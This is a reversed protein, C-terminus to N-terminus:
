IKWFLWRSTLLINWCSRWRRRPSDIRKSSYNGSPRRPSVVSIKRPSRLSHAREISTSDVPSVMLDAVVKPDMDVSNRLMERLITAQTKSDLNKLNKMMEQMVRQKMAPPLDDLNKALENLEKASMKEVSKLVKELMEPTMDASQKLVDLLTSPNIPKKTMEELLKTKMEGSLQGSSMLEKLLDKKDPDNVLGSSVSSQWRHDSFPSANGALFKEREAAPMQNLNKIMEDMLKTRMAPNLDDSNELMKALLKQREDDPLDNMTSLVKEMLKAKTKADLPSTEAPEDGCRRLDKGLQDSNELMKELLKRREEPALDDVNKLMEEMLKARVSPDLDSNELVKQMLKAREDSSLDKMESLLDSIM